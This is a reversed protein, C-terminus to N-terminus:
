SAVKAKRLEEALVWLARNLHVNGDIGNVARAHTRRKRDRTRIGGQVANEQVTNFTAWLSTDRADEYRRAQLLQDASIPAEKVSVTEGDTDIPYRVALAARAYAMQEGPTLQMSKFADVSGDVEEFGRMIGYAAEVVAEVAHGSHRVKVDASTSGYMLGNSCVFRWRGALMHYASAGDHSNIIIVENVDDTRALQDAHRLRLMHKVYGRKDEKRALAECAFFPQFGNQALGRVVEITPVYAYRQSRSSHASEAFVSPAFKRLDDERIALGHAAQHERKKGYTFRSPLRTRNTETYMTM